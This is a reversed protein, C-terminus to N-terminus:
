LLVSSLIDIKEDMSLSILDYNMDENAYASCQQIMDEISMQRNLSVVIPNNFKDAIHNKIIAQKILTKRGSGQIGSVILCRVNEQELDNMREEILKMEDNRGAFIKRKELMPNKAYMLASLKNRIKQLAVTPQTIPKLNYSERIWNPIRVDTHNIDKDIIIPFLADFKSHELKDYILKLEKQVWKSTLSNKSILVVHLESEQICRKIEEETKGGVDFSFADYNCRGELHEAIYDAYMAKDKSSHSIFVEKMIKEGKVGLLNELLNEQSMEFSYKLVKGKIHSIIDFILFNIM